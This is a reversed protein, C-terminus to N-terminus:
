YCRSMSLVLRLKSGLPITASLFFIGQLATHGNKEKSSSARLARENEGRIGHKNEEKLLLTLLAKDSQCSISVNFANNKLLEPM